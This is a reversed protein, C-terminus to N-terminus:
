LSYHNLPVNENISRVGEENCGSLQLTIFEMESKMKQVLPVVPVYKPSEVLVTQGDAGEM